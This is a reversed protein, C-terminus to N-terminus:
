AWQAYGRDFATGLLELPYPLAPDPTRRAEELPWGAAHRSRIVAAVAALEARQQRVFALDVPRGHGPVVVGVEATALNAVHADLTAPWELPWADAGVSPPGSEEVLDGLFAAGADPVVIAIDGDTHGRGAYTLRVQRGGLDVVLSSGFTEDPGRLPTAVVDAADAATYGYEPADFPDARFADKIRESATTFSRAVAEHAVVTAGLFAVNGFTHDFHVHTNVVHTVPVGLGLARIDDLVERGARDSARTDVVLAREAGVVLGVGVDWQPYRALLVRDAVEVFRSSVRM